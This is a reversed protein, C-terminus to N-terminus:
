SVEDMAIGVVPENIPVGADMLSSIVAHLQWLRLDM